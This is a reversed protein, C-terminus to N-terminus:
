VIDEDKDEELFLEAIEDLTEDLRHKFIAISTGNDKFSHKYLTALIMAKYQKKTMKNRRYFLPATELVGKILKNSDINHGHYGM